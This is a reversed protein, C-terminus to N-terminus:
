EWESPDSLEEIEEVFEEDMSNEEDFEDEERMYVESLEQVADLLDDTVQFTFENLGGSCSLNLLKKQAYWVQIQKMTQIQQNLYHLIAELPETADIRNHFNVYFEEDALRADGLESIQLMKKEEFEDFEKKAEEKSVLDPLDSLKDIEEIPEEPPTEIHESPSSDEEPEDLNEGTSSVVPFTKVEQLLDPTVQFTMLSPWQQRDTIQLKGQAQWAIMKEIATAQGELCSIIGEIPYSGQVFYKFDLQFDFITRYGSPNTKKLQKLDSDKTLPIINDAFIIDTPGGRIKEKETMFAESVFFPDSSPKSEQKITKKTM